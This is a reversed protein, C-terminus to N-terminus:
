LGRLVKLGVKNNKRDYEETTVIGNNMWDAILDAAAKKSMGYQRQLYHGLYRAGGQSAHSFPSKGENFRRDIEKLVERAQALSFTRKPPQDDPETELQVLLGNEERKYTHANHDAEDNAKVVAGRVIRGREFLIQLTNCIPRAAEDDLKWLAYALRAGDVLATTGRISERADDGDAITLMGDKRMHHTLLITAGTATALEAMASWLFQAAAPDANVDALVFAQLPDIVVLRLDPLQMLQRKLDEFFPTRALAKGNSAILPRPGGADPLPLVILRKPHRLRRATPDIRNLRRHVADYSDEATVVAATGEVAIRGGLIKRPQELGAVGAAIQLALDLALYSKGLGGMAAILAAVGLPITGRCLWTIPRAEGAYRDATWQMLDIGPAPREDVAHDPSAIGWKRRGGALMSGVERRTQAITYGPLTLAEAATLIEADSWGRAIWHGTLRVLNDHWHDGARVRALCAEVSVNSSGIQLSTHSSAPTHRAHDSDNRERPPQSGPRLPAQVPPFAKAIQEPLYSKPRGDDFILFETREIVRGEKVPWAISGGLRM